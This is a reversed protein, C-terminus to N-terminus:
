RIFKKKRSTANTEFSLVESRQEIQLQEENDNQSDSFDKFLTINQEPNDMLLNPDFTFWEMDKHASQADKLDM